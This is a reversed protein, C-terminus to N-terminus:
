FPAPLMFAHHEFLVGKGHEGIFQTFFLLFVYVALLPVMVFRTLWRFGFFARRERTLARHYAWGTIVKAPYISVIFVITVMWAADSPPLAITFLYLPLSLTLTVLMTLLWSFPANRYLRRVARLEFMAGFRNEAAFHAQLFPVWSLVLMLLLAGFFTVILPGGETKKAAAFLATPIVLWILAGFYGRFGLWFHHKLRLRTVFDRVSREAQSWYDGQRFRQMLWRVNKIPRFFCSLSGGRALALCLHVTIAVSLVQVLVHLNRDAAAGPDILRADAAADSLLRLPFVCLWVGLVISGLRPALDILPFADRLKGTRALRGEVELLYGLALFNVIPVAAIVALLVILSAIGFLSAFCWAVFGTFRRFWSLRPAPVAISEESAPATDLQSEELLISEPHALPLAAPITGREDQNPAAPLRRLAPLPPPRLLTPLPPPRITQAPTVPQAPTIPVSAVPLSSAPGSAAPSVVTTPPLEPEFADEIELQDDTPAEVELPASGFDQVEGRKTSVLRGSNPNVLRKDTGAM